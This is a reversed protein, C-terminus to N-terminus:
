RSEQVTLSVSAATGPQASVRIAGPALHALFDPHRWAAAGAGDVAAVLYEGAPLDAVFFRGDRDVTTEKATAPPLAFGVRRSFDAPFVLVAADKPLAGDVGTVQGGISALHSTVALIVDDIPMSGLDFPKATLDSGGASASSVAWGPPLSVALLYRGPPYEATTFAGAENPRALPSVPLDRNARLSIRMRSLVVPPPLSDGADVVVRGSVSHGRALTIALDDLDRGAVELPVSAWAAPGPTAPRIRTRTSTGPEVTRGADQVVVDANGRGASTRPGDFVLLEYSGPAVGRLEFSGDAASTTRAAQLKGDLTAGDIARSRLTVPVGAVAVGPPGELRGSLRAPRAADLRIDVGARVEGASVHVLSPGATGVPAAAAPYAIATEDDSQGGASEAEPAVVIAYDGPEVPLRYIGRDDSRTRQWYRTLVPRDDSRLFPHQTLAQVLVDVAPEGLDNTVRGTIFGSTRFIEITVDTLTGGDSLLLTGAPGNPRRQGPSGSEYGALEALLHWQGAGVDRFLFRGRDDTITEYQTM